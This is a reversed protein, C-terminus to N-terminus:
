EACPLNWFGNRERVEIMALFAAKQLDTIGEISNILGRLASTDTEGCASVDTALIRLAEEVADLNSPELEIGISPSLEELYLQYRRLNEEVYHAWFDFDANWLEKCPIQTNCSIDELTNIFDVLIRRDANRLLERTRSPMRTVPADPPAAYEPSHALVSHYNYATDWLRREQSPLNTYWLLEDRWTTDEGDAIFGNFYPRLLPPILSSKGAVTSPVETDVLHYLVGWLEDYDGQRLLEWLDRGDPSVYSGSIGVLYNYFPRWEEWPNPHGDQDHKRFDLMFRAIDRKFIYINMIDCPETFGNWHEMFGHMIEHMFTGSYSDLGVRVLDPAIYGAYGPDNRVVEIRIDSLMWLRAHETLGYLSAAENIKDLVWPAENGTRSQIDWDRPKDPGENYIWRVPESEIGYLNRAIGEFEYGGARLGSFTRCRSTNWDSTVVDGESNSLTVRYETEFSNLDDVIALKFGRENVDMPGALYPSYPPTTISLNASEVQASLRGIIQEPTEGTYPAIVKGILWDALLEAMSTQFGDSLGEEQVENPYSALLIPIQIQRGALLSKEHADRLAAKLLDFSNSEWDEDPSAQVVDSAVVTLLGLM